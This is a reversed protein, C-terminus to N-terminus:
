KEIRDAAVTQILERWKKVVLGPSEPNRSVLNKVLILWVTVGVALLLVYEVAVQGRQNKVNSRMM